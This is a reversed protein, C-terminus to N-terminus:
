TMGGHVYRKQAMDSTKGFLLAVESCKYPLQVIILEHFAGKRFGFLREFITTAQSSHECQNVKLPKHNQPRLRPRM